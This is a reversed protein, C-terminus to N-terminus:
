SSPVKEPYPIDCIKSLFLTPTKPLPGCVRVWNKEPLVGGGERGNTLLCRRHERRLLLQWASQKNPDNRNTEAEVTSTRKNGHLVAM